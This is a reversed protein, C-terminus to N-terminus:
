RSHVTGDSSSRPENDAGTDESCIPLGGLGKGSFDSVLLAIDTMDLIREVTEECEDRLFIVPARFRHSRFFPMFDTWQQEGVGLAMFLASLGATELERAAVHVDQLIRPSGQQGTRKTLHSEWNTGRACILFAVSKASDDPVAM